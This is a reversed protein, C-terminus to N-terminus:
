RIATGGLAPLLLAPARAALGERGQPARLRGQPSLRGSGASSLRQAVGAATGGGAARCRRASGSASSSVRNLWPLAQALTLLAAWEGTASPHPPSSATIHQLPRVVGQVSGKSGVQEGAAEGRPSLPQLEGSQRAPTNVVVLLPPPGAAAAGAAAADARASQWKRSVCPGRSLLPLRPAVGRAGRCFCLGLALSAGGEGEGAAAGAAAPCSGAAAPPACGSARCAPCSGAPM